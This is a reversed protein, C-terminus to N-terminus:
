SPKKKHKKKVKKKVQLLLWLEIIHVINVELVWKQQLTM